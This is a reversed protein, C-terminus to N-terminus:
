GGDEVEAMHFARSPALPDVAAAVAVVVVVALWGPSLSRLGSLSGSQPGLAITLPRIPPAPPSV